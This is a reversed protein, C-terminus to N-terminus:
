FAIHDPTALGFRIHDPTALANSQAQVAVARPATAAQEDASAGVVAAAALAATAAGILAVHRTSLEM